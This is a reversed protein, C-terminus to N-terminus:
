ISNLHLRPSISFCCCSSFQFGQYKKNSVNKHIHTNHTHLVPSYSLCFGCCFLTCILILFNKKFKQESTLHWGDDYHWPHVSQAMRKDNNNNKLICFFFHTHFANLFIWVLSGPFWRRLFIKNQKKYRYM